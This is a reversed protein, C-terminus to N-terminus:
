PVRSGDEPHMREFCYIHTKDEMGRADLHLFEPPTM